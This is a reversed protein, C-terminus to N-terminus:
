ILGSNPPNTKPMSTGIFGEVNRPPASARESSKDFAVPSDAFPGGWPKFLFDGYDGVGTGSLHTHSFGWVTSDTFHYGSCGDWGERRTDPGIQLMGFPATAAPHTHGHGGTGIFPDIHSVSIQALAAKSLGAFALLLLHKTM